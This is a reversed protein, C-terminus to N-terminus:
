GRPVARSCSREAQLPIAISRAEALRLSASNNARCSAGSSGGGPAAAAAGALSARLERLPPATLMMLSLAQVMAGAFAPDAHARTPAHAPKLATAHRMVLGAGLPACLVWVDSCVLWGVPTTNWSRPCSATCARGEWSCVCSSYCWGAAASCARSPLPPPPCRSPLLPLASILPEHRARVQLLRAGAPGRFCSLVAQMVAAFSEEHSAVSAQAGPCGRRPLKVCWCCLPHSM